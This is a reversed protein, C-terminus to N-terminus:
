RSDFPIEKFINAPPNDFANLTIKITSPMNFHDRPGLPHCGVYDRSRTTLRFIAGDTFPRVSGVVLLAPFSAGLEVVDVCGRFDVPRVAREVAECTFRTILAVIADVVRVVVAIAEREVQDAIALAFDVVRRARAAVVSGVQRIRGLRPADVGACSREAIDAPAGSRRRSSRYESQGNM